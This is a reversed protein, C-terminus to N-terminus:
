KPFKVEYSQLSKMVFKRDIDSAYLNNKIFKCFEECSLNGDESKEDFFQKHINYEYIIVPTWIAILEKDDRCRDAISEILNWVMTAYISYKTRQTPPWTNAHNPTLLYPNDFAIKLIEMYSKDLEAYHSFKASKSIIEMNPIFSWIAIVITVSITIMSLIDGYSIVIGDKQVFSKPITGINWLLHPALFIFYIVILWATSLLINKRLIPRFIKSFDGVAEGTRWLILSNQGASTFSKKSIEPLASKM